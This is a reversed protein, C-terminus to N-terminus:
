RPSPLWSCLMTVFPICRAALAALFVEVIMGAAGILIRQKRSRLSWSSTVDVYPVPTFILLMVGMTHVQGGFYKCFLGHGFEHLVKAFILGVYLLFINEPAVVERGESLLAPWHDIVTKMGWGVVFLWLLAGLPNVLKGFWFALKALLRDPDFVPIRAFMISMLKSKFERGQREQQRRFLEAADSALDYHLL